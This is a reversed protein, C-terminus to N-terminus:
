LSGLICPISFLILTAKYWTQQHLQICLFTKSEATLYDASQNVKINATFKDKTFEQTSAFFVGDQSVTVVSATLVHLTHLPPTKKKFIQKLNQPHPSSKFSALLM